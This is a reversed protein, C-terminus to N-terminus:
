QEALNPRSPPRLRQLGLDGREADVGGDDIGPEEAGLKEGLIRRGVGLRGDHVVCVTMRLPHLPVLDHVALLGAVWGLERLREDHDRALLRRRAAEDGAGIGDGYGFLLDGIELRLDVGVAVQRRREREVVGLRIIQILTHASVLMLDLGCAV